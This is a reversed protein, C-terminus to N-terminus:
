EQVSTSSTAESAIFPEIVIDFESPTIEEVINVVAVPAITITLDLTMSETSSANSPPTPPIITTPTTTGSNITEEVESKVGPKSQILARTEGTSDTPPIEKPLERPLSGLNIFKKALVDYGKTVIDGNPHLSDYVFVMRPNSVSLGDPDDVTVYTKSQIDYMEITKKGDQSHRNWVVLSGHIYPAINHSTTKTLQTEKDGELLIINWGDDVWRQWVTYDGQRTPEMNNESTQTLQLEQQKEVDYSIIQFRDEVLRHWVITDTNQDYYPAADDMNNNTIQVQTGGRVLFIELDGGEDPASFLADELQNAQPKLCYFSGSALRTCEDKNFSFATDSQTYSITEYTTQRDDIMEPAIQESPNEEVGVETVDDSLNDDITEAIIEENILDSIDTNEETTIEGSDSTETIHNEVENTVGPSLDTVEGEIKYIETASVEELVISEKVKDLESKTLIEIENLTTEQLGENVVSEVSVLEESAYVREVGQLSFSILLLFVATLSLRSSYVFRYLILSKKSDIFDEKIKVKKNVVSFSVSVPTKRSKKNKHPLEKSM